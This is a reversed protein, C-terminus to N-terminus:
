LERAIILLDPSLICGQPVGKQIEVQPVGWCGSTWEIQHFSESGLTWERILRLDKGDIGLEELINILGEHEVCDFAKVYDIFSISLDQQKEICKEM